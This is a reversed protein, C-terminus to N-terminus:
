KVGAWTPVTSLTRSGMTISVPLTTQATPANTVFASAVALGANTASAGATASAHGLTAPTGANQLLAVYYDGIPCAVPATLTWGVLTDVGNLQASIDATVGQRAGAINYLGAFCQGATPTIAAAVVHMWVSTVTRPQTFRPLRVMRVSGSTTASGAVNNLPPFNWSLFGADNPSLTGDQLVTLADNLTQGWPTAGIVPLTAGM